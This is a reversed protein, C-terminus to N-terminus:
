LGYLFVEHPIIQIIKTQDLYLFFLFILSFTVLRPIIEKYDIVYKHYSFIDFYLTVALSFILAGLGLYIITNLFSNYKTVALKTIKFPINEELIITKEKESAAEQTSAIKTPTAEVISQTTTTQNKASESPTPTSASSSATTQGSVLPTSTPTKEETKLPSSTPSATSITSTTKETKALLTEKEKGFHQVVVYVDIGNFEGKLVAIGIERYNPNLINQRHSPSNMWAEHVEKSDLFGIALNEGAYQYDYGAVRFWYWPSKGDPGWHAFYDKDLIDKAKLYAAQVLKPNESLPPLNNKKRESNLYEVLVSKVIDAFFTSKSLYFVLPITFFKLVLILIFYVNLFRRQLFLPFYNNEQCPIFIRKLPKIIM